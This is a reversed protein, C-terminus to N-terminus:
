RREEFWKDSSVIRPPAKFVRLPCPGPLPSVRIADNQNPHESCPRVVYIATLCSPHAENRRFLGEM